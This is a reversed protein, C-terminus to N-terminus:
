KRWTNESYVNGANWMLYQKVGLEKGANIQDLVEEPGYKIYGKIWSATFDQYWPRIIATPNGGESVERNKELADEIGSTIIKFPNADPVSVGYLGPGYHSPYMMPSIYDVVSTILEWQQGIGMDDTVTTTLGYVDASIFIPYDVLNEKTYSLFSAINEAKTINGPNNFVVESNVKKSNDPFRVYDFQVENFGKEAAEIALALNYEWVEKQYPDVWSVGKNDRWVGGTKAKMAIDPDAGSLFPDKFTVIRAITYINNEKAKKLLEDIDRIFTNRDSKIENVKLVDSKYTVYGSDEKVDIVLSNLETSNLLEIFDDYKSGGATNGTLYLGRVERPIKSNELYTISYQNPGSYWDDYGLSVLSNENVLNIQEINAFASNTFGLNIILVSVLTLISTTCFKRRM